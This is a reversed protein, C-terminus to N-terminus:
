PSEDTASITIVSTNLPVSTSVQRRLQAITTDLDLTEIVPELVVERTAIASFNRAQLQSFNSSQALESTSAGGTVTVFVDASATYERPTTVVLAWGGLAGLMLCAVVVAWHHRILRLLSRTEM